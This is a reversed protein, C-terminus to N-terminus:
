QSDTVECSVVQADIIDTTENVSHLHVDLTNQVSEKITDTLTSTEDTTVLVDLVVRIHSKSM